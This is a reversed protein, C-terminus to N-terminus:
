AVERWNCANIKARTIAAIQKSYNRSVMALFLELIVRDASDKPLTCIRCM